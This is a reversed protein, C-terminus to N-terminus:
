RGRCDTRLHREGGTLVATIPRENGEVRLHLKTSFGGQSRGPAENQAEGASLEACGLLSGASAHQPPAASGLSASRSQGDHSSRPDALASLEHCSAFARLMTSVIRVLFSVPRFRAAPGVVDVRLSSADNEM